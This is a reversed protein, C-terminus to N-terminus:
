ALGVRGILDIPQRRWFEGLRDDVRGLRTVTRVLSTRSSLFAVLRLSTARVVAPTVSPVPSPPLAKPSRKKMRPKSARLSMKTSPTRSGATLMRSFKKVSCISIKFPGADVMSPRPVVPPASLITVLCAVSVVEVLRSWARRRRVLADGEVDVLDDTRREGDADVAHPLVGADGPAVIGGVIAPAARRTFHAGVLRVTM